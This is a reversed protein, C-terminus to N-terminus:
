KGEKIEKVDKYQFVFNIGEQGEFYGRFEFPNIDHLRIIRGGRLRERGKRYRYTKISIEEGKDGYVYENFVFFSCDFVQISMSNIDKEKAFNKIHKIAHCVDKYDLDCYRCIHGKGHLFKVDEKKM